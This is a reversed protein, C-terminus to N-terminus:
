GEDEVPAEDIGETPDRESNLLPLFSKKPDILSTPPTPSVTRRSQPPSSMRLTTWSGKGRGPPFDDGDRGVLMMSEADWERRALWIPTPPVRDDLSVRAREVMEDDNLLFLVGPPRLSLPVICLEDDFLSLTAPDTLESPNPAKRTSTFAPDSSFRRSTNIKPTSPSFIVTFSSVPSSVPDLRGSRRTSRCPYRVSNKAVKLVKVVGIRTKSTLEESWREEM